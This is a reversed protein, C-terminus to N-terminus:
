LVFIAALSLDVKGDVLTAGVVRLHAGSLTPAAVLPFSARSDSIMWVKSNVKSTTKGPPKVSAAPRGGDEKPEVECECISVDAVTFSPSDCFLAMGLHPLVPVSDTVQDNAMNDVDVGRLLKIASGAFITLTFGRGAKSPFLGINCLLLSPTAGDSLLEEVVAIHGDKVRLTFPEGTGAIDAVALYVDSTAPKQIPLPQSLTQTLLMTTTPTLSTASRDYVKLKEGVVVTSFIIMEDSGPRFSGAVAALSRVVLLDLRVSEQPSVCEWKGGSM